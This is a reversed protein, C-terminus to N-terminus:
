GQDDGVQTLLPPPAVHDNPRPLYAGSLEAFLALDQRSMGKWTAQLREICAM